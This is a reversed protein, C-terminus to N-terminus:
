PVFSAFFFIVSITTFAVIIIEGVSYTILFPILLSKWVYELLGRPPKGWWYTFFQLWLAYKHTDSPTTDSGASNYQVVLMQKKIVLWTYLCNPISGIVLFVLAILWGNRIPDQFLLLFTDLLQM